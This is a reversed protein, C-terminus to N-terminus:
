EVASSFVSPEPGVPLLCKSFENEEKNRRSDFKSKNSEDGFIQVTVCQWVIQKSNKHGM